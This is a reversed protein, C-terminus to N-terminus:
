ARIPSGPGPAQLILVASPFATLQLLATPQAPPAQENALDEQWDDPQEASLAAQELSFAQQPELSHELSLAQQPELSHELSMAAQELFWAEQEM